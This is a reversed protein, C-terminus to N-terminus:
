GIQRPHLPQRRAFALLLRILDTCRLAGDRAENCLETTIPDTKILRGLLDLNGIIVGLGNNFDHAMGGTLNGISEMKQAHVLQQEILRRETIDQMTGALRRIVGDPDTIARGEVRLLRVGGDPRVFRTERADAGRGTALDDIWHRVSPYDDPHVYATTNGVTPAFDTSFGRIRYLEKSWGYRGTVIDLEWSGIGAIMQARELRAESERLAAEAHKLATIDIRLGTVGGNKMRRDLVLVCSGNGLRQEISGKAERHYQQREACWEPARGRADPNGGKALVDRVIDEFHAGAVLLDAGEAYIRRYTENCMVFRDERDYIVFGESMSDVADRLLAEAQEARDKAERLEAEAAVTATVDRGIGRYGVFVGSGDHVPVGSISVHHVRGDMGVGEYRFDLFRRHDLLDLRHREWREPEGSTDHVEWRRKGIHTRDDKDLLPTGIGIERFRLEADQEWFWDSALEAFDRLRNESEGLAKATRSIAANHAEQRRMQRAIMWFLVVFAGALMVAAAATYAAQRWWIALVDDDHISVDIVLPYDHLPNVSVIASTGSFYGPSRYTGGGAAVRASWPSAIPMSQHQLAITPHRALLLGDHRLLTVAIPRERSIARYFDLLDEVNIAAVVVGLFTGDPGSIRRGLFISMAGTARSPAPESVFVGSGANQRLYQFFDRDAVAFTPMSTSYSTTLVAGDADVLAVAHAQRLNKMRELLFRQTDEGGLRRRFEDATRIGLEGSRSQVEQLLQDIVQVYRSTQEAVVLGLERMDGKGDEITWCYMDWTGLGGGILTLLALVAGSVRVHRAVHSQCAAAATVAASAVSLVFRGRPLWRLM